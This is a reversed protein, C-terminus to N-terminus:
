KKLRLGVMLTWDRMGCDVDDEPWARANNPLDERIHGYNMLEVYREKWPRNRSGDMAQM